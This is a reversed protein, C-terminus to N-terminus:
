HLTFARFDHPCVIHDLHVAILRNMITYLLRRVRFDHCCVITDEALLEGVASRRFILDFERMACSQCGMRLLVTFEVRDIRSSRNLMPRVQLVRNWDM